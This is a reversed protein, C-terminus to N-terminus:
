RPEPSFSTDASSDTPLMEYFLTDEIGEYYYLDEGDLFLDLPQILVTEDRGDRLVALTAGGADLGEVVYEIMQKHTRLRKGDVSRIVDGERLGCAYALRTVDIQDVTLRNNDGVVVSFGLQGKLPLGEVYTRKRASISGQSRRPPLTVAVLRSSYPEEIVWQALPREATLIWESLLYQEFIQRGPTQEKFFASQYAELTSDLGIVQQATVLALLLALNDRRYATPQMLPHNAMARYFPDDSRKAQTLMRHSLQYILNLQQVSGEPAVVALLGHRRGGIPIVLPDSGGFSPYYRLVFLDFHDEVWDLGSLQTLLLLTSGGKEQWFTMLASDHEQVWRMDRAVSNSKYFDPYLSRQFAIAHDNIQVTPIPLHYQILGSDRHLTDEYLSQGQVPACFLASVLLSTTLRRM